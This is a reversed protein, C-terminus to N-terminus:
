SVVPSYLTAISRVLGLGLSALADHKDYCALLDTVREPWAQTDTSTLLVRLGADAPTVARRDHDQPFRVLADDLAKLAEDWRTLAFLAMAREYYANAAITDTPDHTLAEKYAEIAKGYDRLNALAIGKGVLARAVQEQMAPTSAQGFREVVEDY